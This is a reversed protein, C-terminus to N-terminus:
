EYGSGELHSVTIEGLIPRELLHEIQWRELLRGARVDALVAFLLSCFTAALLAMLLVVPTNPATPGKPLRAPAVVSYRYKFAAQATELDIQATQIQSRLGAYKDMADRLQGRAYVMGPDRDDRLDLALRMVDSSLQPPTAAAGALPGAVAGAPGNASAPPDAVTASRRAYEAKLSAVEQRLSAVQPSEESLAAILQKLDAIQPHSETYTTRAEALHGQLESLRHRRAEELEDIMRTKDQMQVKLQQLDPDPESVRPAALRSTAAIRYPRPSVNTPVTDASPVQRPARMNAIGSVADDVDAKLAATHSTLIGISETLATIERAYRADLFAKQAADVLRCAMAADTWDIGVTVTTGGENTWVSLKKELLRVLADLQDAESDEPTHFFKLVAAKARQAPARHEKTYRLLDTQRVLAVLNDRRLITESAVRTLSEGGPGDGRVALASTAHALAKTEVHYTKPLAFLCGVTAAVISVFVAIFRIKHRRVAGAVFSVYNRVKERDRRDFLSTSTASDEFEEDPRDM